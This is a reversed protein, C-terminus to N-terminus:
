EGVAGLQQDVPMVVGLGLGRLGPDPEGRQFFPNAAQSSGAATCAILSERVSSLISASARLHSSM